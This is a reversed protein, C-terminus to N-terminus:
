SPFRSGSGASPPSHPWTCASGSARQLTGDALVQGASLQLPVAVLVAAYSLLHIAHWAEYAIHRRVAILSTGVVLILLATGLLALLMDGSTYLALTEEIVSLGDTLAYGLTLVVGHGLILYLAPKGLRRHLTIAVDQGFTRDIIPIRAALVLMVLILDTGILGAIIGAASLASDVDTIATAGGSVLYLAIATAVSSWCLMVLLDAARM